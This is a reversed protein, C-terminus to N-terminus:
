LSGSMSSDRWRGANATVGSEDEGVDGEGEGESSGGGPDDM